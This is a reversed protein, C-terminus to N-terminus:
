DLKSEPTFAGDHYATRLVDRLDSTQRDEERLYVDIARFMYRALLKDIEEGKRFRATFFEAEREATERDEATLTDVRRKFAERREDIQTYLEELTDCGNADQLMRRLLGERWVRFLGVFAKLLEDESIHRVTRPHAFVAEALRRVRVQDHGGHFGNVYRWLDDMNYFVVHHDEDVKVKQNLHCKLERDLSGFPTRIM